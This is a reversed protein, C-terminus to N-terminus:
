WTSLAARVWTNTAICVYIYNDDVAVQGKVGTDTASNPPAVTKVGSTRLDDLLFDYEVGIFLQTINYSQTRFVSLSESVSASDNVNITPTTTAQLSVTVSESTSITDSVAKDIALDVSTSESVSVADSVAKLLTPLLAVANEAVTASDSVSLYLVPILLNISESVSLSDMVAPDEDSSVLVAESVSVNDSTSPNPVGGNAVNESVTVGDSVSISIAGVAPISVNVSESISSTDNVNIVYNQQYIGVSETTTVSDSTNIEITLNRGVSESVTASDNVNVNSNLEAKTSESVSSSDSIARNSDLQMQVSEAVSINDSVTIFRYDLYLSVSENVSLSDMVAPDEDTSVMIAESLSASDSVNPNPVGSNSVSESVTIGDSVSVSLDSASTRSVSLSESITSSDSTAIRSELMRAISESVTISDSVARNSELLRGISETLTTTDSKNVFSELVRAVSEAVTISDSVGINLDAGPSVISVSISEAVSISDSKNVYSELLRGTSESVSTSDSVNVAYDSSAATYTVSLYPDNATGTQESTYAQIYGSAFSTGPDTNNFDNGMRGAMKTYGTMNVASQGSSNLTISNYGSTSWSSYTKSGFSTSGVSGFDSTALSSTSSQTGSVIYLDPDAISYNSKTSGYLNLTAATVSQGSGIGSTDFAWFMRRLGKEGSFGVDTQIINTVGTDDKATGTGASRCSSWSSSATMNSVAGDGAASYPSVSPDIVLPYEPVKGVDFYITDGDIQWEFSLGHNKSDPTAVSVLSSIRYVLEGTETTFIVHGNEVKPSYPTSFAYSFRTPHGKEQLTINEKLGHGNSVQEVDTSAYAEIFTVTNGVVLGDAPNANLPLLVLPDFGDRSFINPEDYRENFAIKLETEDVFHTNDTPSNDVKLEPNIDKLLGGDDYHIAGLHIEATKTGDGNDFHKATESRLEIIEVPKLNDKSKDDM